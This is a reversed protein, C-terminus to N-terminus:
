STATTARKAPSTSPAAPWAKTSSPTTAPVAWCPTTAKAASSSTTATKAGSSTTAQAAWCCTTEAAATSATAAKAALSSTTAQTPPATATASSSTTAKAAKSITMAALATSGTTAPVAWSSTTATPSAPATATASSSTTTIAAKLSTTAAKASSSTPVQAATSPTTARGAFVLDDGLGGEIHDAGGDAPSATAIDIQYSHVLAGDADLTHTIAALLSGDATYDYSDVITLDRDGLLIDNGDEGRLTDAGTGGALADAETGGELLDDGAFGALYDTGTLGQLRDNDTGGYLIDPRPQADGTVLLNHLTDYDAQLGSETPDTDHPALDGSLDLTTVPAEPAGGEGLVIGLEGDSWGRIVVVANGQKLTLRTEGAVISRTYVINNKRDIWTSSGDTHQWDAPDLGATASGQADIGAIRVVGSGDSDLVTDFGDGTNLIYTDNGAGGELYDNGANGTLTDTGDGGYLRDAKGQGTLLDSNESGFVVLNFDSLPRSMVANVTDGGGIRMKTSIANSTFDEFYFPTGGQLQVYTDGVPQTDNTDFQLQWSLMAARDKLYQDTLSGTGTAPNYLDLEGHTNHSAYIAADGSIAFPTMNVIAYRYALGEADNQRARAVIQDRNFATLPQVTIFDSAQVALQYNANDRIADIALYLADRDDTQADSIRVGTNFLDALANVLTELSANPKPNLGEFQGDDNSAAEFLPKLRALVTDASGTQLGADLQIFLDYVALSDTMGVKGHGFLSTLADVHEIYIAEHGGQQYLGLEGNDTVIEPYRDGYLNLIDASDFEAAGGLMGFLNLINTTASLGLGPVSIEGTAFGAGNVTFADAGVEPFLRTFAVALHGGLSHGTVTLNGPVINLGLGTSTATEFQITRVQGSPEDIIVDTRARLYALYVDAAMDFGPVFQGAKALAYAATEATLTELYAANYSDTSIRKWENYLDVIQDLAIGDVVINGVDEQWLDDSSIGETGRIALVYSGDINKFLTSSFGSDTNPRHAGAVLQWDALFLDAQTDSFGM